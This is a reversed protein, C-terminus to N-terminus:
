PKKPSARDALFSKLVNTSSDKNFYTEILRNKEIQLKREFYENLRQNFGALPHTPEPAPTRNEEGAGDSRFEFGRKWPSPEGTKDNRPHNM